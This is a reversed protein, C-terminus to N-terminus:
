RVGSIGAGTAPVGTTQSMRRVQEEDTEDQDDLGMDREEGDRNM